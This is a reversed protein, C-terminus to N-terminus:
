TFRFFEVLAPTGAGLLVTGPDSAVLNPGRSTVAPTAQFPEPTSTAPAATAPAATAPVATVPAATAPACATLLVAVLILTPYQGFVKM